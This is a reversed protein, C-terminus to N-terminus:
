RRYSPSAYNRRTAQRYEEPGIIDEIYGGLQM